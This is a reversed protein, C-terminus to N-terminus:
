PKEVAHIVARPAMEFALKLSRSEVFVYYSGAEPPEFEVGYVGPELQDAWFRHQRTGPSKYALVRVDTLGSAPAGSVPDSLRIRLPFAEGVIANPRDLLYEVKAHLDSEHKQAEVTVDFCHVLLPSDLYFALMHRGPRRLRAVTEYSGPTREKLSRDVALVARPQRGYNTFSGMPAAMGEKYYYIARDAPNAVLVADAGPAQVISDAPSSMAAEAFPRQGGPFDIVSVPQGERGLTDLPAMWITEDDRQRIFALEDSFTVQEPGSGVHVTQVVRDLAADVIYVLNRETNVAFALRDDPAFRIQGVGPDVPIRARLRHTRGDVVAVNGDGQSSVYVAAGKSSYALSVPRQGTEVEAVESLDGVDIVAVTGDELNTVFAFRSDESFVIEHQGRGTAIRGVSTLAEADFIAVGSVEGPDAQYTVWLYKGDPQLAVRRPPSGVDLNAVVKWTETDAVAVRGTTPVSVFLRKRDSSLVWDEGPGELRIMALLKTGGFGFLPDVVTITADDNLALVYYVNLDLEAQSFLSGGAFQEVKAQCGQADQEIGHVLHDLWAAPYLGRLPGNTTTDSLRFRFLVDDGEVLASRSQAIPKISVDVAIGRHVFRDRFEWSTGGDGERSTTAEPTSAPPQAAMAPAPPTLGFFAAGALGAMVRISPIAVMDRHM